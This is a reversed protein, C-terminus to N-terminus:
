WQRGGLRIFFVIDRLLIEIINSLIYLLLIENNILSFLSIYNLSFVDVAVCWKRHSQTQQCVVSKIFVFVSHVVYLLCLMHNYPFDIKQLMPLISSQMQRIFIERM